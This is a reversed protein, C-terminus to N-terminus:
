QAIKLCGLRSFRHSAVIVSRPSVLQALCLQLAEDMLFSQRSQAIDIRQNFLM